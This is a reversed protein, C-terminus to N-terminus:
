GANRLLLMSLKRAIDVQDIRKRGSEVFRDEVLFRVAGRAAVKDTSFPHHPPFGSVEVIDGLAVSGATLGQVRIGGTEDQVYLRTADLQGPITTAVGRITVSKGTASQEAEAITVICGGRAAVEQYQTENLFVSIVMPNQCFFAGAGVGTTDIVLDHTGVPVSLIEFRGTANTTGTAGALVQTTGREQIRVKVNPLLRDGASPDYKGDRNADVFLLGEIAGTGPVEFVPPVEDDCASVTGVVLAALLLKTAGRRAREFKSIVNGESGHKFNKM